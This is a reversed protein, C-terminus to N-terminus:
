DLRSRPLTQLWSLRLRGRGTAWLAARGSRTTTWRYREMPVRVVLLTDFVERDLLEERLKGDFSALRGGRGEKVRRPNVLGQGHIDRSM